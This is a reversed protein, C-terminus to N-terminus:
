CRDEHAAIKRTISSATGMRAGAVMPTAKRIDETWKRFYIPLAFIAM